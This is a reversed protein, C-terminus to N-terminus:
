QYGSHFHKFSGQCASYQICTSCKELLISGSWIAEDSDSRSRCHKWFLLILLILMLQYTFHTHNSFVNRTWLPLPGRVTKIFSQGYFHGSFLKLCFSIKEIFYITPGVRLKDVFATKENSLYWNFFIHQFSQKQKEVYLFHKVSTSGGGREDQLWSICTNDNQVLDKYYNRTKTKKENLACRFSLSGTLFVAAFLTHLCYPGLASQKMCLLRIPTWVTQKLSKFYVVAPLM